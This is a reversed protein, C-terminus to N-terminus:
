WIEISYEVWTLLQPTASLHILCIETVYLRINHVCPHTKDPINGTPHMRKKYGIAEVVIFHLRYM